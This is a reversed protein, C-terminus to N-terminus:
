KAVNNVNSNADVFNYSSFSVLGPENYKKGNMNIKKSGSSNYIEGNNITFGENKGYENYWDLFSVETGSHIEYQKGDIFIVVYGEGKSIESVNNTIENKTNNSEFTTSNNNEVESGNNVESEIVNSTENNLKDNKPQNRLFLYESIALVILIIVIAIIAGGKTKEQHMNKEEKTYNIYKVKIM